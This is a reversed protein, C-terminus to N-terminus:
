DKGIQKGTKSIDVSIDGFGSIRGGAIGLRNILGDFANKMEIWTKWRSCKKKTRLIGMERSVKSMQEQMWDVKDM